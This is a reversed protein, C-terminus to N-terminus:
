KEWVKKFIQEIKDHQMRTLESTQGVYERKPMNKGGENLVEAYPLDVVMRINSIGGGASPRVDATRAMNSVARRLTGGRIKYGSGTLIPNTRRQLGKKAPYKYEATDPQRRKVEQWPTGDFGQKAFSDLFYNQAQNTLLVLAERETEKIKIKVHEFNFQTSM